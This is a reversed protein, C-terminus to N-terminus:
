RRARLGFLLPVQPFGAAVRLRRKSDMTMGEFLACGNAECLDPGFAFCGDPPPPAGPAEVRLTHNGPSVVLPLGSVSSPFAVEDLFVRTGRPPAALAIVLRGVRPELPALQRGLLQHSRVEIADLRDVPAHGPAAPGSSSSCM